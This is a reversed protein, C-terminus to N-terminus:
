LKKLIKEYHKAPITERCVMQCRECLLIGYESLMESRKKGRRCLACHNLTIEQKSLTIQDLELSEFPLQSICINDKSM